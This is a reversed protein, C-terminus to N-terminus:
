EGGLSAMPTIRNQPIYPPFFQAVRMARLEPEMAADFAMGRQRIKEAWPYGANYRQQKAVYEDFSSLRRAPNGGYVSGSEIRGALVSGGNIIVNDGITTGMGIISRAGISVNNGIVVKGVADLRLGLAHNIVNIAGNHGAILVGHQIRVNDGLAVYEPDTFDVTAQISCHAGMAHLNGHRRLWAAWEDGDPHCLAKWLTVGRGREMAIRCIISKVLRRLQINGFTGHHNTHGREGDAMQKITKPVQM